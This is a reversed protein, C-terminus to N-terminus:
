LVMVIVAIVLGLVVSFVMGILFGRFHMAYNKYGAMGETGALVVFSPTITCFILWDILLWDVMNFVFLVGSASLFVDLFRHTLTDVSLAAVVPFILSV